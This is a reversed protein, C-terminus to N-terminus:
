QPIGDKMPIDYRERTANGYREKLLEQYLKENEPSLIPREQNEELTM